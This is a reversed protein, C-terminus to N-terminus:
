IGTLRSLIKTLPWTPVKGPLMHALNFTRVTVWKLVTPM